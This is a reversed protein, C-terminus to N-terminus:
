RILAMLAIFGIINAILTGGVLVLLLVGRTKVLGERSKHALQTLEDLDDGPAPEDDVSEEALEAAYARMRDRTALVNGIVLDAVLLLVLVFVGGLAFLVVRKKHDWAAERTAVDTEHTSALVEPGMIPANALSQLYRLADDPSGTAVLELSTPALTRSAGVEHALVALPDGDGVLIPLTAWTNGPSTPHAYCQVDYRGPETFPGVDFASGKSRLAVRLGRLWVAGRRVDCFLVDQEHWAIVLVKGVEGVRLVPRDSRLLLQRGAPVLTDEFEASADGKTVTTKFLYSPREAVLHWTALGNEDTHLTLKGDPLAKNTIAVTADAVSRGDPDRVRVFMRNDLQSVVGAGEGLVSLRFPKDTKGLTVPADLLGEDFAPDVRLVEIPVDLATTRDEATAVVRLAAKVPGKGGPFAPIVAEIAAPDGDTTQFGLTTPAVGPAVLDVSTVKVPPSTREDHLRARVRFSATRDAAVKGSGFVIFSPADPPYRLSLYTAGLVFVALAVGGIVAKRVWPTAGLRRILQRM